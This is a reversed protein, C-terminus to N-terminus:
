NVCEHSTIQDHLYYQSTLLTVRYWFSEELRWLLLQLLASFQPDLQVRDSVTLGQKCIVLRRTIVNSRLTVLGRNLWGFLMRSCFTYSYNKKFNFHCTTPNYYLFNQIMRSLFQVICTQETKNFITVYFININFNTWGEIFIKWSERTTRTVSLTKALVLNKDIM